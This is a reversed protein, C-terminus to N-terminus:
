YDDYAFRWAKLFRHVSPGERPRGAAEDLLHELVM